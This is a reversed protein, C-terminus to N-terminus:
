PPLALKFAYFNMSPVVKWAAEADIRMTTALEVRRCKL